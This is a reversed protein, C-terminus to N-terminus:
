RNRQADVLAGRADERSGDGENRFGHRGVRRLTLVYRLRSGVTQPARGAPAVRFPQRAARLLRCLAGCFVDTRLRSLARRRPRASTRSYAIACAVPRWGKGVHDHPRGVRLAGEECKTVKPVTQHTSHNVFGADLWPMSIRVSQYIKMPAPM